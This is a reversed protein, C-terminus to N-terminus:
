LYCESVAFIPFDCVIGSTVGQQRASGVKPETEAVHPVGIGNQQVGLKATKGAEHM